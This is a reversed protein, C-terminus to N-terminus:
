VGDALIIETDPAIAALFDDVNDVQVETREGAPLTLDEQRYWSNLKEETWIQGNGDLINAPIEMWRRMDNDQFTCGDLILGSPLGGFAVDEVRNGSFTTNRLEVGAGPSATVLEGVRNNEVTCDTISVTKCNYLYFVQAASGYNILDHFSCNQISLGETDTFDM